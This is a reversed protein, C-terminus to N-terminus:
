EEGMKVPIELREGGRMVIVKVTSDPQARDIRMNLEGETRIPIGGFETVIDGDRLGAIYAPRNKTVDNLQVGYINTGPVQVRKFDDDVGLLGKPGDNFVGELRANENESVTTVKTTRTEGDRTFVVDVTKGIPTQTLLNTLDSESKVPKGDFSTIVDGGVLGAKDAASGPPTIDEIFAGGQATKYHSGLYAGSAATSASGTGTRVRIRSRIGSLGSTLAMIFFPIMVWVM